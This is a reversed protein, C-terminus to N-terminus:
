WFRQNTKSRKLPAQLLSNDQKGITRRDRKCSYAARHDGREHCRVEQAERPCGAGLATLRRSGKLNGEEWFHRLKMKWFPSSTDRCKARVMEEMPEYNARSPKAAETIDKRM